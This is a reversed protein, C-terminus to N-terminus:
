WSHPVPEWGRVESAHWTDRSGPFGTKKRGGVLAAYVPTRGGGADAGELECSSRSPPPGSLDRRCVSIGAPALLAQQGGRGYPLFPMRGPVLKWPLWGICERSVGFGSCSKRLFVYVPSPFYSPNAIRGVEGTQCARNPIM